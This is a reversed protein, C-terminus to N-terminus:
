CRAFRSDTELSGVTELLAAYRPEARLPDFRPEVNISALHLDREAYALELQDLARRHDGLAAYVSAVYTPRVYCDGSLAAMEELTGLAERERGESAYLVGLASLVYPRRGGGRIARDYAALAQDTRGLATLTDGLLQRGIRRRALQLQAHGAVKVQDPGIGGGIPRESPAAYRGPDGHGLVLRRPDQKWKRRAM